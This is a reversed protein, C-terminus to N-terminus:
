TGSSHCTWHSETHRKSTWSARGEVGNGARSSRRPCAGKGGMRDVHASAEITVRGTDVQRKPPVGAGPLNPARRGSTLGGAAPGRLRCTCAHGQRGSVVGAACVSVSSNPHSSELTEIQFVVVHHYALHHAFEGLRLDRGDGSAYSSDSSNGQSVPARMDSSPNNPIGKSSPTPRPRSPGAPRPRDRHLLQRARVGAMRDHDPGVRARAAEGIWRQPVSSCFSRNRRGNAPPCTRPPNPSVSGPSPSRHRRWASWPGSPPRGTSGSRACSM